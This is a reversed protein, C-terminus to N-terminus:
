LEIRKHDKSERYLVFRRGICQVQEAGTKESIYNCAERVDVDATELITIKVLERNELAGDVSVIMNENLGGKGIQFIPDLTNAMSRLKARQKSTIM